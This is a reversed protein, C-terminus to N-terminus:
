LVKFTSTTQKIGTIRDGEMVVDFSLEIGEPTLIALWFSEIEAQSHERLIAQLKNFLQEITM